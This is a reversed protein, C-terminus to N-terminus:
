HSEGKQVEERMKWGRKWGCVKVELSNLELCFSCPGLGRRDRNDISKLNRNGPQAAEDMKLAPSLDLYMMELLFRLSLSFRFPGLCFAGPLLRLHTPGTLSQRVPEFVCDRAGLSTIFAEQPDKADEALLLSVMIVLCPVTKVCDKSGPPPSM